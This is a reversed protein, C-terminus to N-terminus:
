RLYEPKEVTYKYVFWNGDDSTNELRGASVLRNSVDVADFTMTEVTEEARQDILDIGSPIALVYDIVKGSFDLLVQFYLDWQYQGQPTPAEAPYEFPIVTEIPDLKLEILTDGDPRYYVAELPDIYSLSTDPGGADQGGNRDDQQATRATDSAAGEQDRRTHAVSVGIRQLATVALDSNSFTDAFAEYAYYVSSDGPQAYEETLWILNFRAQLYYQSEEFNDVVYQYYHRASDVNEEDVLFDEARHLYIEAYGTDAATGKLGLQELAQPVFDSKPYNRVVQKLLSDAATTDSEFERIMQALAILGRPTYYATPFEEVMYRMEAIASDPKNLAFWYLEALKYQTYAAQDIAAETAGSDLPTRAFTELKGIDSSRQLADQAFDDGAARRGSASKAAKDYFSKAEQLQDYDFQYILGLRYNAYNEWYKNETTRVVDRYVGEASILDDELELGEAVTLKLVGLSDYYAEDKILRDLYALGDDIRQLRYSSLASHYLAHYKQEKTPDMGLLQLYGGLAESFQFTEFYGDAIYRQAVAKSQDNGLSDRIAMYYGRSQDYERKDFHYKGLAEAAETKLRKPYKEQFVQEFIEKADEIDGLALKAKALYVNSERAYESNGYNALIERFRRESRSYQETHFYSVALIYLADDYYKSNPHSEVVKLAKQIAITYQANGATNRVPAGGRAAAALVSSQAGKRADEAANFAKKCNFFTNFYVSCGSGMMVASLIITLTIVSIRRQIRQRSTMQMQTHVRPNEDSRLGTRM